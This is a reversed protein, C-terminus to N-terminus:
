RILRLLRRFRAAAGLIAFVGYVLLVLGTAGALGFVVIENFLEVNDWNVQCDPAAQCGRVTLAELKM